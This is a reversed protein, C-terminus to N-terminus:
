AFLSLIPSISSPLSNLFQDGNQYLYYVAVVLCCCCLLLVVIAVIIWITTNNKKAPQVPAPYEQVPGAPPINFDQAM